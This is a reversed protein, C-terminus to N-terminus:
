DASPSMAVLRVDDAVGLGIVTCHGVPGLVLHDRDVGSPAVVQSQDLDVGLVESKAAPRNRAFTPWCIARQAMRLDSCLTTVAMSDPRALDFDRHQLDGHGDLLAAVAPGHEIEPGFPPM